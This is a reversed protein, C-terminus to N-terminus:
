QEREAELSAEVEETFEGFIADFEGPQEDIFRALADFSTIEYEFALYDATAPGIHQIAQLDDTFELQNDALWAHANALATEPDLEEDDIVSPSWGKRYWSHRHDDPANTTITTTGDPAPTVTLRFGGTSEWRIRSSSNATLEWGHFDDKPNLGALRGGSTFADGTSFGGVHNAAVSQISDRDVGTDREIDVADATGLLDDVSTYGAEAFAVLRTRNLEDAAHLKDGIEGAQCYELYQAAEDSAIRFPAPSPQGTNTEQEVFDSLSYPSVGLPEWTEDNEDYVEIDHDADFYRPRHEHVFTLLTINM